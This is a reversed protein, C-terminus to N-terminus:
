LHSAAKQPCLPAHSPPTHAEVMTPPIEFRAVEVEEIMPANSMKLGSLGSLAVLTGNPVLREDTAGIRLSCATSRTSVAAVAMREVATAVATTLLTTDTVADATVLAMADPKIAPAVPAAVPAAELAATAPLAIPLAPPAPPAARGRSRVKCVRDIVVFSFTICAM